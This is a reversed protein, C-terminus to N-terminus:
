NTHKTILSQHQVSTNLIKQWLKILKDAIKEHSYYKEVRDIGYQGVEEWWSHECIMRELIAALAKSDGESFVLDRRGIVNPIEGSDSGIVPVGMAMAEILVHGFQEKWTVTTRSPLVLADFNRIETPAQEHRVGGRWIVLDSIQQKQVEQRLADEGPGSGCISVQCKLGQDRLQRVASFITDIGKEPVLRGLFGINFVENQKRIGKPAFLQTDVGIQPMVEMLGTYGWQRLLNAGDQNGPLILQATNLVFQRVWRRPLPLIREMNEWGFIVLPKGTLRSWIALEFACLSFVEHEVQVVDPKFDKLFLWIKWPSYICAGGRGPFLVPATYIKINPYPKEVKFTRNWELAKWNSPTLLGVEAKGTQAIANLKGQNVGVVYAHSIFLVRLPSTM